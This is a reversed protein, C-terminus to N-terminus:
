FPMRLEARVGNSFSGLNGSMRSYEIQTQTGNRATSRIGLSGSFASEDLGSIGLSYSTDPSSTYYMTQTANDSLAHRYQIRFTPSLTGWSQPWDYQGHIGIKIGKSSVNMADYGLTYNSSGSETYSDLRGLMFDFGSYLSYKLAGNKQDYSTTLFGFLMNGTRNGTLFGSASSNYRNSSFDLRGYGLMGDLFLNKNIRWSAYGTSNISIGNNYSGDGNVATDDKSFGLAFGAKINETLRGDLGFTLGSTSFKNNTSQGSISQQGITINGATWMNIDPSLLSTITSTHKPKPDDFFESPYNSNTKVTRDLDSDDTFAGPQLAKWDKQFSSYPQAVNLQIGNRFGETDDEHIDEVRQEVTGIFQQSARQTLAAQAAFIGIVNSDTTPDSNSYTFYSNASNSGSTNTVVVSATGASGSPTVATITTSSVVVVSTASRGGITVGTAGTFNTGTLTVSTGGATPGSSPSISTLTPADSEVTLSVSATAAAYTTDAAKTATITITGASVGTVLGSTSHVTAIAANQSSYTIAGTGTGGSTTATTTAGIRISSSAISITITQSVLTVTVTYTQTAAQNVGIVAAQTATIVSTGVSVATVLGTTADVTAVAPAASSYTILGYSGGSLTSTAVNSLTNGISVSDSSPTSFTLTPTPPATVTLTATTIASAYNGSAVQTATLITSGVGVITIAGTTSDITA